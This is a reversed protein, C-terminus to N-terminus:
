GSQYTEAWMLGREFHQKGMIGQGPGDAGGLGSSEFVDAYLLDPIEIDIETSPATQFGLAGNWTMNQISLLTGNTIIEFDFDGNAILVRNTAEIVKPL